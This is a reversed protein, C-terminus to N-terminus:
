LLSELKAALITLNVALLLLFASAVATVSTIATAAAQVIASPASCFRIAMPISCLITVILIVAIALVITLPRVAATEPVTSLRAIVVLIATAVFRTVIAFQLEVVYVM